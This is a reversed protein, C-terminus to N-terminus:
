QGVLTPNPDIHQDRRERKVREWIMVGISILAAAALALKLGLLIHDIIHSTGALPELQNAVDQIPQSAASVVTAAVTSGSAVTAAQASTSTTVTVPKVVGALKIGDELQDDTYPQGGLEVGIIAGVMAFATKY